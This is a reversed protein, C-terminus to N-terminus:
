VKAREKCIAYAASFGDDARSLSALKNVYLVVLPHRNIYDTGTCDPEKWLRSVLEALSKVVGSLNCADQVILARRYDATSISSISPKDMTEM